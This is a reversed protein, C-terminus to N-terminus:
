KIANTGARTVQEDNAATSGSVGIAGIVKGGAVILDGGRGAIFGDFSLLYINAPGAALRDAFRATPSRFRAAARAKHISLDISAFSTNGLREFYMLDGSIGVVAISMSWNNKKAEAIAAAAVKKADDNDISQGYGSQPFPPPGAQQASATVSTFAVVLLFITSTAYRM